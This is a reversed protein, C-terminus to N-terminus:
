RAAWGGDVPVTLGTVDAADDSCLWAFAAAQAEAAILRGTPHYEAVIADRMATSTSNAIAPTGTLGPAVVNVRINQRAYLVATMESLHVVGAKAATYAPSAFPTVRIGAMSATNAIAGGGSALMAAIEHKMCLFTSRLCLTVTAEWGDLTCEHLPPGPRDHAAHGGVVNVAVDLRGFRSVVADILAVVSGEDTADCPVFLADHGAEALDRRMAEGREGAIDCFAVAAGEAALRRVTALGIGSAGATVLAVKGAYRASIAM